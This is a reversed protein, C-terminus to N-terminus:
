STEQTVFDPLLEAERLLELVRTRFPRLLPNKALALLRMTLDLAGDVLKRTRRQQPSKDYIFLILAGMHLAWLSIPLLQRLDKPLKEDEIARTFIEISERRSEATGPGLCSLPHDPEGSYRFIVGLLKRDNELIDLKSRMVFQLREKLDMKRTALAESIKNEHEAQVAKYYAQIISEKGPFYYYAAGLAVGADAAIDRMTTADFGQDRFLRLASKLIEHRTQEGKETAAENIKFVNLIHLVLKVTTM